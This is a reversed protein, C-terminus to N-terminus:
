CAREECEVFATLATALHILSSALADFATRAPPAGGSRATTEIVNALAFARRGGVTAVLSKLAHAADAAAAGDGADLASGIRALLRPSEDLLIDRLGRRMGPDDVTVALLDEASFHEDAPESNPTNV